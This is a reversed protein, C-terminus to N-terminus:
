KQGSPKQPVVAMITCGTLQIGASVGVHSVTGAVTVEQPTAISAAKDLSASDKIWCSVYDQLRQDDRSRPIGLLKLVAGGEGDPTISASPGTLQLTKGLYSRDFGLQNAEFAAVAERATKQYEGGAVAAEQKPELRDLAALDADTDQGGGKAFTLLARARSATQVTEPTEAQAGRSAVTVVALFHGVGAAYAPADADSGYKTFCYSYIAADTKAEGIAGLYDKKTMLANLRGIRENLSSQISGQYRSSLVAPSCHSAAGLAGGTKGDLRLLEMPDSGAVEAAWASWPCVGAVMAALVIGRSAKSVPTM